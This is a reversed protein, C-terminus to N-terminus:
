PAPFVDARRLTRECDKMEKPEYVLRAAELLKRSEQLNGDAYAKAAQISHWAPSQAMVPLTELLSAADAANGLRLACLYLRLAIKANGPDMSRATQFLSEAKAYDGAMFELEAINFRHIKESPNLEIARQFAKRAGDFDKRATLAAGLLQHTRADRPRLKELEGIREWAADFNEEKMLRSVEELTKLGDNAQPATPRPSVPAPPPPEGTRLVRAGVVTSFALVIGFFGAALLWGLPRQYTEFFDRVTEFLGGVFEALNGLFIGIAGREWPNRSGRVTGIFEAALDGLFHFIGRLM